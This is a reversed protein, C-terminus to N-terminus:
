KVRRSRMGRSINVRIEAVEESSWGAATWWERNAANSPDSLELYGRKAGVIEVVLNLARELFQEPEAAEDLNLLGQYLDRELRLRRADLPDLAAPEMASM